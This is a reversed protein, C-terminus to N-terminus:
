QLSVAGAAEDLALILESFLAEGDVILHSACQHLGYKARRKHVHQECRQCRYIAQKGSSCGMYEFGVIPEKEKGHGRRRSQCDRCLSLLTDVAERTEPSQDETDSLM